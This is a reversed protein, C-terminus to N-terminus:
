AHFKKFEFLTVNNELDARLAFEKVKDQFPSNFDANL